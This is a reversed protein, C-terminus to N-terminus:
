PTAPPEPPPPEPTPEPISEPTPPPPTEEVPPTVPTTTGSPETVPPTTTAPPEVVPATSTAPTTTAPPEVVPATSTAPTTTAPPDIVPDTSTAPTTTAPPTEIVPETTTGPPDTIVSTDIPDPQPVPIQPQQPPPVDPKPIGPTLSEPAPAFPEEITTTEDLMLGILGSYSTVTQLQTINKKEIEQTRVLRDKETDINQKLQYQVYTVLSKYEDLIDKKVTLLEAKDTDQWKNNVLDITSFIYEVYYNFEDETVKTVRARPTWNELNKNAIYTNDISVVTTQQGVLSQSIAAQGTPTSAFASGSVVIVIAVFLPVSNNYRLFDRINNQKNNQM